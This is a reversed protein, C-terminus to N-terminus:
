LNPDEAGLASQESFPFSEGLVVKRSPNGDSIKAQPGPIFQRDRGSRAGRVQGHDAEIGQGAFEEALVQDVLKWFTRLM